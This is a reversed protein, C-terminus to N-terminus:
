NHTPRRAREYRALIEDVSSGLNSTEREQQFWRWTSFRMDSATVRAITAGLTGPETSDSVEGNVGAVILEAAANGEGAVVVSPVGHSAAEAVVLGFGERASSNVLVAASAILENLELDTVNGLMTGVGAEDISSRVRDAEPGVGVIALGLGPVKAVAAPLVDARKDPILRGVFLAYPPEDRPRPPHTDGVMDLLGLVVPDVQPSQEILRKATFASNVTHLHASRIAIRQMIWAVTGTLTGAYERWKARSWIELWDAIIYSNRRGAGSSAAMLTLVPLASAIVADYRGRTAKFYRFVSWAFAVASVTTRTGRANYIEGRWVPIVRFSTEPEEAWSKRTIYEVDHGREVLLDAIRRYVREGGGRQEPFFCDYVLAIRM